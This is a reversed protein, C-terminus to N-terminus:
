GGSAITPPTNYAASWDALFQTKQTSWNPYWNGADPENFPISIYNEPHASQTAVKEVASQLIPLYDWVGNTTGPRVGGNYAWDPYEDQVYVYLDKSGSAFFSREM